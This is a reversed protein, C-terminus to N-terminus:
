SFRQDDASPGYVAPVKAGALRLYVSLQGRHHALHGFTDRIVLRRPDSAVVNGAVLLKWPKLLHEETTGLLAARAGKVGEDHAHVLEHATKLPQPRQGGGPPNLDLEDMNIIMSVWGPMGAVLTALRGLPTSREHPAFDHKDDPVLELARRTRGAEADLEAVFWDRLGTTTM